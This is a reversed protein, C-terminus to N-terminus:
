LPQKRGTGLALPEIRGKLVKDLDTLSELVLVPTGQPAWQFVEEAPKLPLTVCGHSCRASTIDGAHIWVAEYIRMAWPMWAPNGFSNTYSRSIHNADKEMVKYIGAVTPQGDVGICIQTDGKLRGREYWGLFYIEKVVLISRSIGALGSIFVPLPTWDKYASFDHPVKLPRGNQIDDSIIYHAKINLRALIQRCLSPSLDPDQESVRWLEEDTIRRETWGWQPASKQKPTPAVAGPPITQVEPPPAKEPTLPLSAQHGACSNLLICLAVLIVAYRPLIPLHM